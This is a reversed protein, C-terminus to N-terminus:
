LLSNQLLNQILELKVLRIGEIKNKIRYDYNPLNKDKDQAGMWFTGGEVTVMNNIIGQVQFPIEKPSAEKEANKKQGCSSFLFAVSIMALTIGKFLQNNM